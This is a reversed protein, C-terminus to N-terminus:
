MCDGIAFAIGSINLPIAILSPYKKDVSRKCCPVAYPCICQAGAVSHQSHYTQRSIVRRVKVATM